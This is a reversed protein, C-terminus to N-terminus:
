KIRVSDKIVGKLYVQISLDTYNAQNINNYTLLEQKYREYKTNIELM